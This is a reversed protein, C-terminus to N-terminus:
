LPSFPPHPHEMLFHWLITSLFISLSGYFHFIFCNRSLIYVALLLYTFFPLSIGVYQVEKKINRYQGPLFGFCLQTSTLFPPPASLCSNRELGLGWFLPVVDQSKNWWFGIIIIKLTNIFSYCFIFFSISLIIYVHLSNWIHLYFFFIYASGPRCQFVLAFTLVLM